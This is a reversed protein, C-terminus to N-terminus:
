LRANDGQQRDHRPRDDPWNHPVAKFRSKNKGLDLWPGPDSSMGPAPPLDELSRKVSEFIRGM